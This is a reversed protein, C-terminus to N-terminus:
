KAPSLPVQDDVPVWLTSRIKVPYSKGGRMRTGGDRSATIAWWGPEPLTFTAVGNPDTKVSRTIHEDPPLQKPPTVNYREVEVLVGAAPRPESGPFTPPRQILAPPSAGDRIRVQFVMGPRLGYPRTLPVLEFGDGVISDWGNQTQVHLIVKVTDELFTSDEQLWQPECRVLVVHDGRLAPSYTWRYATVPVHDRDGAQIKETKGTLESSRGDPSRTVITKPRQFDFLQHEFPHGFFLTFTVTGDRDIAARDPFLIHYHAPARGTVAILAAITLVTRYAM